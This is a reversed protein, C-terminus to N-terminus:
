RPIKITRITNIVAVLDAIQTKDLRNNRREVLYDQINYYGFILYLTNKVYSKMILKQTACIGIYARGYKLLVKRCTANTRCYNSVNILGERVIYLPEYIRKFKSQTCTRCWLEYDEARVFEEDYKNNRFWESKGVVTAHMLLSKHAANQKSAILESLGRTGKPNANQDITFIATDVVDVDPNNELFSIQKRFREPLMLDDGDMRALYKGKAMDAIQNLRVILGKNEGDSILRVRKDKINKVLESSGDTSGDDVLLLEWDEFTQAFVSKVADELTSENNYFPLGISLLPPM